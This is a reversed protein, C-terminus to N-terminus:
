GKKKLVEPIFEFIDSAVVGKKYRDAAMEGALGNVYAAKKAAKLPNMGSALFAGCIGSLTDGFGGKTMYISGTKNQFTKEGDSIVDVHGKLLIVAGLKKAWKKTKDKRDKVEPLVNEGTLSYFEDAHPTIVTRKVDLKSGAKAAEGWARIADADIVMPLNIEKIIEMIAQFTERERGIGSGLILADSSKALEFITPLHDPKLYDSELPVTILDPSFNAATEGSRLPSVVTVLDAGARLASM